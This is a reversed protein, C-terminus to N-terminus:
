PVRVGCEVVELFSFFSQSPGCRKGSAASACCERFVVELILGGLKLWPVVEPMM